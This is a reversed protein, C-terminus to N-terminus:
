RHPSAARAAAPRWARASPSSRASRDERRCGAPAASCGRPPTPSTRANGRDSMGTGRSRRGRRRRRHRGCWETDPRASVPPSDSINTGFVCRSLVRAASPGGVGRRCASRSRVARVSSCWGDPCGATTGAQRAWRAQRRRSSSLSSDAGAVVSRPPHTAGCGSGLGVDRWLCRLRVGRCRVSSRRVCRRRVFGWRELPAPAMSRLLSPSSTGNAPCARSSTLM